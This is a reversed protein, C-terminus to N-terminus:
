VYHTTDVPVNGQQFRFPIIPYGFMNQVCDLIYHDLIDIYDTSKMTGDVMVLKGVGHYLACSLIHNIHTQTFNQAKLALM